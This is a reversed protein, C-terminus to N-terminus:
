PNAATKRQKLFGSSIIRQFVEDPYFRTLCERGACSANYRFSRYCPRCELDTRGLALYNPGLPYPGYVKEDVPGYFAITPVELARAMHVMGSDNALLFRAKKLIAASQRVPVLGCLNFGPKKLRALVQEGLNFENRSGLVVVGDMETEHALKEILEAFFEPSWRKFHADRGWSEGGGPAVAIFSFGEFFNGGALLAGAIREDEATLFFDPKETKVRVDALKGMESYYEIVHKGQYGEPLSLSRTLFAGRRKYNFGIRRSIGLFLGAFLAYRRSLSCDIFVDYKQKRLQLLLGAIEFFSEIRGRERLRDMDVTFIRDVFPNTEFIERTRSGLVMDVREARAEEKLARLLPTVFLADGIGFPQAVLVRKM